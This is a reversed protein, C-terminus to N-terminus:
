MFFITRALNDEFFNKFHISKVKTRHHLLTELLTFLYFLYGNHEAFVLERLKHNFLSVSEGVKEHNMRQKSQNHAVM